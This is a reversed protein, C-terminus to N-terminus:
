LKQEKTTRTAKEEKAKKAEKVNGYSLWAKFDPEYMMFSQGATIAHGHYYLPKVAVAKVTKERSM